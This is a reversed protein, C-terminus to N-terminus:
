KNKEDFTFESLLIEGSYITENEKRAPQKRYSQNILRSVTVAHYFYLLHKKLKGEEVVRLM